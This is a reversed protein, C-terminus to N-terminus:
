KEHKHGRAQTFRAQLISSCPWVPSTRIGGEAEKNNLLSDTEHDRCPMTGDLWICCHCWRRDLFSDFRLDALSVTQSQQRISLAVSGVVFQWRWYEWERRGVTRDCYSQTIQLRGEPCIIDTWKLHHSSLCAVVSAAPIPNWNQLFLWQKAVVSSLLPAYRQLSGASNCWWCLVTQPSNPICNWSSSAPVLMQRQPPLWVCSGCPDIAMVGKSLLRKLTQLVNDKAHINQKWLIRFSVFVSRTVKNGESPSQCSLWLRYCHRASYTFDQQRQLAGDTDACVTFGLFNSHVAVVVDFVKM